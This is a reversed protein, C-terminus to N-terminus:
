NGTTGSSYLLISVHDLNTGHNLKSSDALNLGVDFLISNLLQGYLVNLSSHKLGKTTLLETFNVVEPPITQSAESKIAIVKVDPQQALKCANKIVDLNEVLCFIAKPRCSALQRSIEEATYWPNVTTM